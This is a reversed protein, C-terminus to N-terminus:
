QWGIFGERRVFPRQRVHRARPQRVVRFEIPVLSQEVYQELVRYARIAGLKRDMEPKLSQPQAGDGSKPEQWGTTHRTSILEMAIGTQDPKIRPPVLRRPAKDFLSEKVNQVAGVM